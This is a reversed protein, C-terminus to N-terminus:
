GRKGARVIRGPRADTTRGADRVVQGAVVTARYGEAEQLLRRGGAPLDRVLHPPRLALKEMDIVNLDARRGVEVIGRDRLSLWRAPAGSLM